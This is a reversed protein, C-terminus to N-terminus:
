PRRGPFATSRRRDFPSSAPQTGLSSRLSSLRTLAEAINARTGHLFLCQDPSLDFRHQMLEDILELALDTYVRATSLLATARDSTM